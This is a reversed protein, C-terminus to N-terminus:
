KKFNLEQYNWVYKLCEASQSNDFLKKQQKQNNWM